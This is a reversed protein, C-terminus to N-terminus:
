QRVLHVIKGTDICESKIWQKNSDRWVIKKCHKCKYKNMREQEDNRDESDFYEKLSM